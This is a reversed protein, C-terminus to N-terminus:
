LNRLSAPRFCSRCCTAPSSSFAPINGKGPLFQQGLRPIPSSTLGMKKALDVQFLAKIVSLQSHPM